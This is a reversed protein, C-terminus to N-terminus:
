NSYFRRLALLLEIPDFGLLAFPNAASDKLRSQAAGAVESAMKRASSPLFRAVRRASRTAVAAVAAGGLLGLLWAPAPDVVINGARFERALQDAPGRLVREITSRQTFLSISPPAIRETVAANVRKYHSRWDRALERETVLDSIAPHMTALDIKGQQKRAIASSYVSKGDDDLVYAVLATHNPVLLDFTKQLAEIRLPPILDLLSPETWIGRCQRLAQSTHIGQAPYDMSVRLGSDFAETLEALASREVVVIADVGLARKAALLQEKSTGRFPVDECKLAGQGSILAHILEGEQLVLVAVRSARSLGTPLSLQWWNRLHRPDLCHLDPDAVLM